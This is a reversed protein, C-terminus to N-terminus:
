VADEDRAMPRLGDATLSGYVDRECAVGPTSVRQRCVAAPPRCVPRCITTPAIVIHSHIADAQDFSVCRDVLLTSNALWIIDFHQLTLEIVV